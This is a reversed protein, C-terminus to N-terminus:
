LRMGSFLNANIKQIDGIQNIYDRAIKYDKSFRREHNVLIPVGYKKSQSLIKKGELSNLAVPKELIILRPKKSIALLATRLFNM